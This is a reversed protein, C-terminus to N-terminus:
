QVGFKLLSKIRKSVTPPIFGSVAVARWGFRKLKADMEEILPIRETSIGTEELGALYKSHANKSFFSQSINLIFRWSAHDIPTYLSADQKAIFPRLYEPVFDHDHASLPPM